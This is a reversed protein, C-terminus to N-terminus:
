CAWGTPSRTIARTPFRSTAACSISDWRRPRACSIKSSNSRLRPASAKPIITRISRAACISPSATSTFSATGRRLAAFASPMRRATWYRAEEACNWARATFTRRTPRGAKPEPVEFEVSVDQGEASRAVSAVPAGDPGTVHVHAEVGSKAASLQLQLSVKGTVREALIRCHILHVPDRAELVVSQWIGGLPGYWSQKGHPIEAFPFDPATKPDGDPLLVDVELENEPRLLAQPAVCEFPLYGGEHSGIKEGNLRVECYYSVAGFKLAIESRELGAARHLEAQLAGQGVEPASRCVGGALPRSRHGNALRRGGRSSLELARRPVLIQAAGDAEHKFSWSGDLSLFMRQGSGQSSASSM